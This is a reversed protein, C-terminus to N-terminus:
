AKTQKAAEQEPVINRLPLVNADGFYIGFAADFNSGQSKTTTATGSSSVKPFQEYGWFPICDGCVALVSPFAPGSLLRSDGLATGLMIHNVTTAEWYNKHLVGEM